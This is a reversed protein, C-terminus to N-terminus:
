IFHAKGKQLFSKPNYVLANSPWGTVNHGTDLKEIEMIDEETLNFDFLDINEKLREIHTTKPIM